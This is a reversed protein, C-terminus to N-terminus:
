GGIAKHVIQNVTMSGDYVNLVNREAVDPKIGLAILVSVAEEAKEDLKMKKAPAPAVSTGAPVEIKDKLEMVIREATKKGVGKISCIVATNGAAIAGALESFPLGGLIALALKPGVGSIDLLQLFLSKENQSSFGYLSMEDEKVSLYTSFKRESGIECSAALSTTVFLEYGVGGVDVVVSSATKEAVIGKIYAYM